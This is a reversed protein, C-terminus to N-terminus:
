LLFDGAGLPTQGQLTLAIVLDATSDGNTDGEVFWTGNQEYARLQGATGTFAGSGIWSFAQDGAAGANADIRDLEIRDTGATFDLIQDMSAATSEAVDQYRFADAGGNGALIDAGLNGHILDNLAGGKLTDSAKGGFLRLLGDSEQSADLVMSETALLLSGSITLTQGANVIANSLTLNYDFETGGGRAYREDTASTLTLNEINTFLGTYGPANFDITYNGRLFMGDYGAGGNVTDGSAFREEAYFFIDNGLGGLLTDKGKGGYVVFHANTEASGDFTFDEGELLAAANIRAQVGAAFNVDTTTLVYDYRNTGPEGFVINNGGLISVNEIQQVKDSLTLAGYPGQLVLTDTGEGGNVFDAGTLSGIMFITDGGAGGFVTDDGGDQLRLIDNGNGGRIVNNGSDGRLDDALQSGTINEIGTVTGVNGYGDRVTGAALNVVYGTTMPPAEEAFGDGDTDPRYGSYHSDLQLTDVGDGGDAVATASSMQLVDDGGFGYISDGLGAWVVNVSDNGYLIDAYPTDSGLSEVNVMEEVNGFGDNSIIGTRLDAVVGQTAKPEAFSVRDGYGSFDNFAGTDAGGDFRDIGAGGRMLDDGSDGYLLDDGDEGWVVDNGEDGHVVDNGGRGFVLDNGGLGAMLDAGSTGLRYDDGSTGEIVDPLTSQVASDFRRVAIARVDGLRSGSLDWWSFVLDGDALYTVAPSSQQDQGTQNVLFENGVKAGGAGFLQAKVGSVSGDSNVQGFSSWTVVFGGASDAAVGAIGLNGQGQFGLTETNVLIEGGHRSGDANFVQARIDAPDFSGNSGTGESTDGWVIVFRGDALATVVPASQSHLTTTNVLFEGGIPVGGGNFLRARVATGSSDGATGSADTWAIVIMGSDLQAAYPTTQAGATTANVLIEGGTKVGAANFVQAKIGTGSPDQAQSSDSWTVLFGGGELATPVVRLQQGATVTNVLFEGGVKAGSPDLIQAKVDIMTGTNSAAQAPGSWTVVINGNALLIPSGELQNGATATNVVFPAGLSGNAGHFQGMIEYSNTSTRIEVWTMFYGGNPLAIMEASAANFGDTTPVTAKFEPQAEFVASAPSSTLPIEVAEERSNGNQDTVRFTLTAESPAYAFLLATDAVVLRDGELRFAGTPDNLLEFSYYANLAGDAQVIAAQLNEIAGKSISPVSLDIDAILGSDERFRQAGIDTSNSDHWAVLFGGDALALMTSALQNGTASTNVQFQVGQPSGDAGFVRALVGQGVADEPGWSLATWSVAYAGDALAVIAPAPHSTGFAEGVVHVGGAPSGDANLKRTYVYADNADAWTVAITGDSLLTAVPNHATVRGPAGGGVFVPAPTTLDVVQQGGVKAASSDFIQVAIDTGRDEVTFPSQAGQPSGDQWVVAFGGGQLAVVNSGTQDRSTITNVVFESGSLAGTASFLQGRVDLGSASGNSNSGDTWTIVFGGGELGAISPRSQPGFTTTTALGEPGVGMGDATFVQYRIASSSGDSGVYADEWAVVFGGGALRAVVANTQDSLNSVNVLFDPAVPTGDAEFIQARIHLDPVAQAPSDTWVAVYRTASIWTIKPLSQVGATNTANLTFESESREYLKMPM